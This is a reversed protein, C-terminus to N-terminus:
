MQFNSIDAEVLLDGEELKKSFKFGIKEITKMIKYNELLVTATIYKVGREKAIVIIYKLFHTGIGKRQWDDHMVVAMEATEPNDTIIYHGIGVIQNQFEVVMAFNKQYDIHTYDRIRSTPVNKRGSFFRFYITERSLSYYFELIKDDDDPHIPRYLVKTGDHTQFTTRYKQVEPDDHAILFMLEVVNYILNKYFKQPVLGGEDDM